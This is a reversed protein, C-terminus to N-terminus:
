VSPSVAPPVTPAAGWIHSILLDMKVDQSEKSQAIKLAEQDAAWQVFLKASERRFKEEALVLQREAQETKLKELGLKQADVDGKHLDKVAKVMELLTEIDTDAGMSQLRTLIRGTALAKAGASMNSGSAEALSESFRALEKTVHIEKREDLWQQYAGTRWASLNQASIPEGNWREKLRSKVQPLANLWPLIESDVQGDLLRQNIQERLPFPLSGIKSRNPTTDTM